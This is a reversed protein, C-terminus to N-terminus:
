LLLPPRSELVSTLLEARRLAARLEVDARLRRSDFGVGLLSLTLPVARVRHVLALLVEVAREALLRVVIARFLLLVLITIVLRPESTRLAALLLNLLDVLDLVLIVLLVAEIVRFRCILGGVGQLVLLVLFCLAFLVIQGDKARLHLLFLLAALEM